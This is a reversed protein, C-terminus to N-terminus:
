VLKFRVKTAVAAPSAKGEETLERGWADACPMARVAVVLNIVGAGM